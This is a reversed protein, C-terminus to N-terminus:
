VFVCCPTHKKERTADGRDRIMLTVFGLHIKEEATGRQEKDRMLFRADTGFNTKCTSVRTNATDQPVLEIEETYFIASFLTEDKRLAALRNASSASFNASVSCITRCISVTTEALNIAARKLIM